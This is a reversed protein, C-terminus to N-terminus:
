GADPAATLVCFPIALVLGAVAPLGALVAFVSGSALLLGLIVLGALTHPWLFAAAEAWPIRREERSQSPWGAQSLGLAHSLVVVTNHFAIIPDFLLLFLSESVALRLYALRGGPPTRLLAAVHGALRPTHLAAYGLLLLAVLAGRPTGEADFAANLAALPLMAFWLPALLYHLIAQLMQFRGVRSLSRDRLLHRYQLNGAAWRRDRVLFALLHPPASELSGGAGDRMDPLVRVGWGAAHLRAAEVHDHSLIHSGDPLPGLRCHQRFPAIRIAANHGWFPGEDGQWWGQGLTWTQGGARHGANFLRGFPAAAPRGAIPSQLLGLRPEAEMARVLRLVSDPSMESDADLLVMLDFGEAHHDLFDMVNGAKYGTNKARRRYLVRGGPRGASFAAVAAEEAAARAPDTTDSLLVLAFRDGWPALGDMLRALPPLVEGMAEDRVCVAIATRLTVPGDPEPAAGGRLRVILGVTGTAAALAIWPLNGILCVLLLVEWVSWGGPALVGIGLALLLTAIGIALGAFAARRRRRAARRVAEQRASM